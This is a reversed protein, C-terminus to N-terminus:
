AVKTMFVVTHYLAQCWDPGMHEAIALARQKNVIYDDPGRGDEGDLWKMLIQGIIEEPKCSNVSEILDQRVPELIARANADFVEHFNNMM